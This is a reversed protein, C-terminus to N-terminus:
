RRERLVDRTFRNSSRGAPPTARLQSLADAQALATAVPSRNDIFRHALKRAEDLLQHPEHVAKVLGGDLVEQARCSTPATSGSWRAALHRRHAAPVLNLLGRAHHRDQRLRLGRASADSALRVDMALTMTAGIGIAAGNIAAIVPKTCAFIALTVRGGTDRVGRVIVPDDIRERVDALTPQLTEDLGFVNGAEGLDMGACFAKGAGTVIVAGVADDVSARQFAAILEDAMTVTFANLRDPRNLTITLIATPSAEYDITEFANMSSRAHLHDCQVQIRLSSRQAASRLRRAIDVANATVPTGPSIETPHQLADAQTYSRRCWRQRTLISRL